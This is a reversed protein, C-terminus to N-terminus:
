FATPGGGALSPWTGCGDVATFLVTTGIGDTVRRVLFIVQQTESPLQVNFNGPTEPVGAISVRANTASGFNIAQLPVRSSTSSVVVQLIGRGGPSVVVNIPPRPQCPDSQFLSTQIQVAGTAGNFGGLQVLYTSNAVVSVSVRSTRLGGFDDSCDLETADAFTSGTYIAVVTDFSSGATAVTLTGTAPAVVRYWLTNSIGGCPQPEGAQTSTDVTSSTLAAPVGLSLPAAVVDNSPASAFEAVLMRDVNMGISVPNSMAIVTGNARWQVFRYGSVPQAAVQVTSSDDFRGDSGAPNTSLTGAGAPSASGDLRHTQDFRSALYATTTGIQQVHLGATPANV